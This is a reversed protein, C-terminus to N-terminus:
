PGGYFALRVSGVLGHQEFPQTWIADFELAPGVAFHGGFLHGFSWEHFIGIGGFSQTGGAEPLAPNTSDLKGSGIGLNALLGLGHLSPVLGVLPFLEIRFGGGDGTSHWDGNHVSAHGYWFGFNLYDSLAGMVFIQTYPGAMLGSASYYDPNGIDQSNNPYGSAGALGAGYSFGMVLGSRYEHAAPLTAVPTVDGGTPVAAAAAQSAAAFVLPVLM